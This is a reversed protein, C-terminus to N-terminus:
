VQTTLMPAHLCLTRSTAPAGAHSLQNHLILATAPLSFCGALPRFRAALPAAPASAALPQFRFALTSRLCRTAPLCHAAPPLFRAAFLPQWAKALVAAHLARRSAPMPRMCAALLCGPPLPSHLPRARAPRLCRAIPPQPRDTHPRPAILTPCLHRPGPPPPRLCRRSASRAASAACASAVPLTRSDAIQPLRTPSPFNYRQRVQAISPRAARAPQLELTVCAHAAPPLRCTAVSSPRPGPDHQRRSSTRECLDEEAGYVEM